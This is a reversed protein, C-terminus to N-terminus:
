RRYILANPLAADFLNYRLFIWLNVVEAVAKQSDIANAWQYLRTPQLPGGYLVNSSGIFVRITRM